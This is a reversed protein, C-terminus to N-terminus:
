SRYTAGMQGAALPGFGEVRSPYCRSGSSTTSVTRNLSSHLDRYLLPALTLLESGHAAVDARNEAIGIAQWASGMEVCARYFEAISSYFHLSTDQHFYLRNYNDAEDDGPLLGYRPDDVPYGLTLSRRMALFDAVAKAKQFHGLMFATDGSYSSYLALITLMRASQPLEEGRYRVMGDAMIYHTFENDILGRAWEMAGVELAAQATTTFTDQFGNQM